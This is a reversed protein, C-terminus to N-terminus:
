LPCKTEDLQDHFGTKLPCTLWLSSWRLKLMLVLVQSCQLKRPALFVKVFQKLVVEVCKNFWRWITNWWCYNFCPNFTLYATLASKAYRCSIQSAINEIPALWSGNAQKIVQKTYLSHIFINLLMGTGFTQRKIQANNPMIAEGYKCSISLCKPLCLVADYIM